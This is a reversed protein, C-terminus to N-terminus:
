DQRPPQITDTPQLQCAKGKNKCFVEGSSWCTLCCSNCCDQAYSQCPQCMKDERPWPWLKAALLRQCVPSQNCHLTQRQGPEYTIWCDEHFAYKGPGPILQSWWPLKGLNLSRWQVQFFNVGVITGFTLLKLVYNKNTPSQTRAIGQNFSFCFERCFDHDM